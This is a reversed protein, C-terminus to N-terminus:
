FKGLYKNANIRLKLELGQAFSIPYKNKSKLDALFQENERNFIILRNLNNYSPREIGLNRRCVDYIAENDVM